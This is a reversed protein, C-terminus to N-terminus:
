TRNTSARPERCFHRPKLHNSIATSPAVDYVKIFKIIIEEQRLWTVKGTGASLVSVNKGM